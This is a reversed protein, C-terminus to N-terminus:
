AVEGMTTEAEHSRAAAREARDLAWQAERECYHTQIKAVEAVAQAERAVDRVTVSTQYTSGDAAVIHRPESVVIAYGAKVLGVLLGDATFDSGAQNRIRELKALLKTPMQYGWSFKIHPQCYQQFPTANEVGPQYHQFEITVEKAYAEEFTGEYQLQDVPYSRTGQRENQALCWDRTRLIMAGEVVAIVTHQYGGSSGHTYVKLTGAYPRPTNKKAM